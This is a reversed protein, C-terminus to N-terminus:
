GEEVEMAGVLEGATWFKNPYRDNVKMILDDAYEDCRNPRRVPGPGPTVQPAGRDECFLAAAEREIRYRYDEGPNPESLVNQLEEKIIQKLKSKTIKM